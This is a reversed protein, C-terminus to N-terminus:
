RWVVAEELRYPSQFLSYFVGEPEPLLADLDIFPNMGMEIFPLSDLDMSGEWEPSIHVSSDTSPSSATSTSAFAPAECDVCALDEVKLASETIPTAVTAAAAAIKPVAVTSLTAATQAPVAAPAYGNVNSALNRINQAAEKAQVQVFNKIKESDDPHDLRLNAPLHPFTAKLHPFNYQTKKKTYFVGADYAAAAEADTGYTGLWITRKWKPPRIEVLYGRVGARQRVGKFSQQRTRSGNPPRGRPKTPPAFSSSSAIRPSKSRPRTVRKCQQALPSAAGDVEALVNVAAPLAAPTYDTSRWVVPKVGCKEDIYADQCNLCRGYFESKIGTGCSCSAWGPLGSCELLQTDVDRYHHSEDLDPM